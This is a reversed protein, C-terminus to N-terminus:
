MEFLSAMPVTTKLALQGPTLEAEFAALVTGLRTSSPALVGQLGLFKAAEGVAQCAEWDPSSLDEPSLGVITLNRSLTLDLVRLNKVDITHVSRRPFSSAGQAQAETMKLFEAICASLPMAMYITSFSDPPNWRGGFARAGIGRLPDRGEATHRFGTGSWSTKGASDVRGLLDNPLSM